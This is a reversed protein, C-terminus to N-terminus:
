DLVVSGKPTGLSVVLRADNSATVESEIGLKGLLDRVADPTPHRIEFSSLTCGAPADGSPHPSGASWQIFFPIPEVDNRTLEHVIGLTRWKLMRGDPRARAGDRPGLVQLGARKARAVAADIDDTSAAWGVLRPEALKRLDMRFSYSTQAPDPAIIELYHRGGLSLLANRTGAGPHSGGLAARVGTREEVWAVGRDLDGVGLLFHDMLAAGPAIAGVSRRVTAILPSAITLSLFRRRTPSHV